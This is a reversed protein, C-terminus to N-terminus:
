FQVNKFREAVYLSVCLSGKCILRFKRKNCVCHFYTSWPLTFPLFKYKYDWVSYSLFLGIKVLYWKLNSRDKKFNHTKLNNREEKEGTLKKKYIKTTQAYQTEKYYFRKGFLGM